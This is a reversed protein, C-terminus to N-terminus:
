FLKITLMNPNNMSYKSDVPHPWGAIPINDATTSGDILPVAIPTNKKRIEIKPIM